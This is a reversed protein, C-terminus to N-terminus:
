VEQLEVLKKFYPSSDLLTKFSGIDTIQGDNMIVIRDANKITSIRHAVILITYEGKLVDINEQIVRETESDLASTAEDLILIEVNKYLERAISIRQRQGGSLNTGNNGLLSEEKDPLEEIFDVIAAQKVANRFKKKNEENKNDWFTVNNFVTDNFIVPDQTIYGTKEQLSSIDLSKSSNGNILFEGGDVPLLGAFINVLTTKGSGSEGVFAITENKNIDLSVNNIVPKTGYHFTIDRLNFNELSGALKQKGRDEKNSRLEKIFDTLNEMSGSLSLFKNYRVQMQMLYNLARYFFILSILIPGLESGLYTTQIFIVTVVVSILIPERGATLLAELKGIRKNSREIGKVSEELKEGYKNLSGTAKLYKYNTVNQIVLGQFINSEGTLTKSIGKTNKYLSKYLFNTLIGGITVLIAFQADVNFAFVMYVAVLIAYELTKFYNVFANSIREVEGTLTNQIRGADSTVFYKYSLNNLGKVNRIRLRRIFWQQVNVRYIGALYQAVGKAFFFLAMLALISLLNISFGADNLFDVLFKLKGMGESDVSSSDSVMQLLPLFMTLGFGDLIGILLNFMVLIFIRYGLFSYFFAFSEFYKKILKKIM